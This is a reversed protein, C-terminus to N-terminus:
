CYYPKTCNMNSCTFLACVHYKIEHIDTLVHNLVTSIYSIDHSTDYISSRVEILQDSIFNMKNAGNHIKMDLSAMSSHLLIYLSLTNLVVLLIMGCCCTLASIHIVPPGTSSPKEVLEEEAPAEENAVLPTMETLMIHNIVFYNYIKIISPDNKESIFVSLVIRDGSPVFYHYESGRQKLYSDSM